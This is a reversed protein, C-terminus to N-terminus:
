SVRAARSATELLTARDAIKVRACGRAAGLVQEAADIAEWGTWEVPRLGRGSLLAALADPDRRPARPLAPADALLAAVTEAADSKNTGIVGTPGRKVWGAVYVGTLPGGETLVRGRDHPVISAREDFPLGALPVGRYGVSRLVMEAPLDAREGTGVLRGGEDLRSREFRVGTVADVGLVEVPRLWFRLRLRRPRGEPTRRAWERLVELNRRLTGDAQVVAETTEDLELDAPDVLVDANALEGLERLEKTTFKAQAPGRRGVMTVEEVASDRLADLVQGPVDTPSLEAATKSLVRAVDVAVNGVGIVVVRRAHLAFRDLEADPHGSYWAVFDTASFSGALDEGPVDLRRDVAAGTAFLVADYHRRLEDLSLDTGVDINGLFRVSPQELVKRLAADVSKMKVHDPAVGYRVLGYPAPLRDLVDVTVDDTRTLAAAAYVGAPGSGVVAGRLDVV